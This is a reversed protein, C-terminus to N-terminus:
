PGDPSGVAALRRTAPDHGMLQHDIIFKELSKSPHNKEEDLLLANRFRGLGLYLAYSRPISIGLASLRQRGDFLGRNAPSGLAQPSYLAQRLKLAEDNIRAPSFSAIEKLARRQEDSVLEIRGVMVRTVKSPVSVHLPLYSDTWARPVLFFVRWGASKFYSLEWTNLLAQAEDRFLGAHELTASLTSKLADRNAASYDRPAFETKATVPSNNKWRLTLGPIDRFAIQGDNRIHVLWLPTSDADGAM